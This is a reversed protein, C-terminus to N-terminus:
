DLITHPYVMQETIMLTTKLSFKRQYLNFLAELNPGLLEMVMANYDGINGFWYVHPV